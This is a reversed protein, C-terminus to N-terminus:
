QRPQQWAPKGDRGEAMNKLMRRHFASEAGIAAFVKKAPVLNMMKKHYVVELKENQIKLHDIQNLAKAYEADTNYKREADRCLEGIKDNIARQKEHMEDYLPFYLAAEQATMGAVKAIYAHIQARFAQPSFRPPQLSAQPQQAQQQVACATASPCSNDQAMTGGAFALCFFVLTFFFKRYM